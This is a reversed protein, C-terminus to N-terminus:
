KGAPWSFTYDDFSVPHDDQDDVHWALSPMNLMFAEENGINRLAALVGAPV